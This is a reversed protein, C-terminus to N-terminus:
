PVKAPTALWDLASQIAGELPEAEGATTALALAEPGLSAGARELMGDVHRQETPILPVGLRRRTSGAVVIMRAAREFEREALALEAAAEMLYIGESKAGLERAERLGRALLARTETPHGARLEAVSTTSLIMARSVGDNVEDILALSRRLAERSREIDGECLAVFGLNHLCVAVGRRQGLREYLVLGEENHRRAAAFDGQYLAITGLGASARAVGKTDDLARYIALSEEVLPRAAAYDGQYIALGGARVLVQARAATPAEAGPRKLAEGLIHRGTTFHGRASWFRWISGAFRLGTAAADPVHASWAFAALLNEIELELEALWRAEDGGMLEREATEALALFYGLHRGRAAAGEGAADLQRAAYARVTELLRYRTKGKPMHEVVIWSKHVLQTLRDLVEFEDGEEIAIATARGLDWGGAFVSLTRLMRREAEELLDYSWQVAALLTQHRAGAGASGGTLLRFRDDLKDRIQEVGLVRVRAAALEIALPIGDLRRCIDVVARTGGPDLTFDPQALTARDVFLRVADSAALDAPAATAEPVGLATVAHVQEGALGLPESSTALVAVDPCGEILARALARCPELLHECNDLIVLSRRTALHQVITETLTRGPEDRLGLASALAEAVREPQTVPAADVFWAGDAVEPLRREAVQLALRTKGSGGIGTLTVLRGRDLREACKAIEAERGVFSTASRPLNHPTAVAEGARLAAARRTGLAEELELRVARMERLRAEPDKDLCRDLLERVRAPTREPLRARDPEGFLIAGHVEAETAADFARRGTLCEYLV